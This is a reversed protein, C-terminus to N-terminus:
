KDEPALFGRALITNEWALFHHRNKEIRNAKAGLSPSKSQRKQSSSLPSDLKTQTGQAIFYKQQLAVVFMSVAAYFLSCLFLNIGESCSSTIPCVLPSQFPLNPSPIFACTFTNIMTTRRRKADSGLAAAGTRKRRDHTHECQGHNSPTDTAGVIKYDDL